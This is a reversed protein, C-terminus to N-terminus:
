HPPPNEKQLSLLKQHWLGGVKHNNRGHRLFHFSNSPMKWSLYFKVGWGTWPMAMSACFTLMQPRRQYPDFSGLGGLQKSPHLLIRFGIVHKKEATAPRQCLIKLDAIGKNRLRM